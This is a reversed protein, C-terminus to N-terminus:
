WRDRVRYQPPPGAPDWDTRSTLHWHNTGNGLCKYVRAEKRHDYNRAQLEVILALETNADHETWFIEKGTFMCVTKVRKPKGIHFCECQDCQWVIPTIKKGAVLAEALTLKADMEGYCRGLPCYHSPAAQATIM